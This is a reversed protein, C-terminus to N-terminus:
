GLGFGGQLARLFRHGGEPVGSGPLTPPSIRRAHRASDQEGGGLVHAPLDPVEPQERPGEPAGGGAAPELVVPADGPEPGRARHGPVPRHVRAQGDTVRRVRGGGRASSAHPGTLFRERAGDPLCPHRRPRGRRAADGPAAGARGAPRRAHPGGARPRAPPQHDAGGRPSPSCARRLRQRGQLRDPRLLPGRASPGGRAGSRAHAAAREQGLRHRGRDPRAPGPRGAGGGQPRARDARGRGHSRDPRALAGAALAGAVDARSRHGHGLPTRDPRAPSRRGRRPRRWRSGRAAAAGALAGDGRVARPRRCGAM